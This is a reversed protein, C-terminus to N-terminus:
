NNKKPNKGRTLTIIFITLAIIIGLTTLLAIQTWDLSSQTKTQVCISPTQSPATTPNSSIPTPSPATSSTPESTVQSITNVTNNESNVTADYQDAIIGPNGANTYIVNNTVTANGSQVNIAGIPYTDVRPYDRATGGGTITNDAIVNLGGNIIIAAEGVNGYASVVGMPVSITNNVIVLSSGVINSGLVNNSIASDQANITGGYLNNNSITSNIASIVTDPFYNNLITSNSGVILFATINDNIIQSFGGVYVTAMGGSGGDITSSDIKLSNISSISGMEDTHDTPGALGYVGLFANEIISGSGTQQNWGTSQDTFTIQGGSISIKDASSGVARLTGNVQLCYGNLEVTAGPDITLTIGDSVTTTGTLTYPSNAKTWTTNQNIESPVNASAHVLGFSYSTLLLFSGILIAVLLTSLFPKKKHVGRM